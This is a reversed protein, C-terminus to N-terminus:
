RPIDTKEIRQAYRRVEVAEPLAMEDILQDALRGALFPAYLTGKSGLGNMVALCRHEPHRGVVPLRDKSAPRVGARHRVVRPATEPLDVMARLGALLATRGQPSPPTDLHEWAWTSGLRLRGNELPLLWKERNFVKPPLELSTEVELVEGKAPELPVWDFWPNTGLRWGECFILCGARLNKWSVTAAGPKVEAYPMAAHQLVHADRLYRHAAELFDETELVAAQTISFSGHRDQLAPHLGGAATAEGLFARYEPDGQRKQWRHIESADRYMRQIEISRFFSAGLRAEMRPYWQRAAALLEAARWSKVLRKGTVPNLIGAAVRSATKDPEGADILRVRSGRAELELALVTGAIGGGLICFDVTQTAPM